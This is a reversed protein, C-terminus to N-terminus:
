KMKNINLNFGNPNNLLREAIISNIGYLNFLSVVLKFITAHQHLTGTPEWYAVIFWQFLSIKPWPSSDYWQSSVSSIPIFVPIPIPAPNHKAFTIWFDWLVHQVGFLCHQSWSYWSWQHYSIPKHICGLFWSATTVTNLCIVNILGYFIYLLNAAIEFHHQSNEKVGTSHHMVHVCCLVRFM